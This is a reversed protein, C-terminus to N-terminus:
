ISRRWVLVMDSSVLRIVKGMSATRTGNSTATIINNINNNNHDVDELALQDPVIGQKQLWEVTTCKEFADGMPLRSEWKQLLDSMAYNPYQLFLDRLM